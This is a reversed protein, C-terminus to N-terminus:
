DLGEPGIGVLGVVEVVQVWFVPTIIRTIRM